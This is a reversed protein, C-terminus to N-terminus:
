RDKRSMRWNTVTKKTTIYTRPKDVNKITATM